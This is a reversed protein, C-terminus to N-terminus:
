VFPLPPSTPHRRQFDTLSVIAEAYHGALYQAHAIRLEAEENFESFPYQDLLDHYEDIALTLAGSRVHENADKFYQDASLHEKASCGFAVCLMVLWGCHKRM